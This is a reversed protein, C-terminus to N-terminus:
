DDGYKNDDDGDDDDDDSSGWQFENLQSETQDWKLIYNFM